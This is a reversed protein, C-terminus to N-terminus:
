QKPQKSNEDVDTSKDNKAVEQNSEALKESKKRQRVNAKDTAM